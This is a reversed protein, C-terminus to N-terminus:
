AFCGPWLDRSLALLSRPGRRFLFRNLVIKRGCGGGGYLIPSCLIPVSATVVRSSSRSPLLHPCESRHTTGCRDERHSTALTSKQSQSCASGGGAIVPSPSPLHRYNSTYTLICSLVLTGPSVRQVHAGLAVPHPGQSVAAQISSSNWRCECILRGFVTWM